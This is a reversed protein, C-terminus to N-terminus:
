SYHVLNVLTTIGLGLGAIGVGLLAWSLIKHARAGLNFDAAINLIGNLAHYIGGVLLVSYVAIIWPSQLRDVVREITIEEGVKDMHLVWMHVGLFLAILLASVRQLFWSWLSPGAGTAEEQRQPTHTSSKEITAV